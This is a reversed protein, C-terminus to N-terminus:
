KEDIRNVLELRSISVWNIDGNACLVKCAPKINNYVEIVIMYKSYFINANTLDILNIPYIKKFSVIDGKKISM